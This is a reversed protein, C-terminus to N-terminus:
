YIKNTAIRFIVSLRLNGFQRSLGFDALKIIGNSNLLLNSLKLDRHMFFISHM